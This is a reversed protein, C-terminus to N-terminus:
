VNQLRVALATALRGAEQDVTRSAERAADLNGAKALSELEHAAETTRKGGFVAASGKLTHAARRLRAADGLATAERIESLLQPCERLFVVALERLFEPRNEAHELAVQWDLDGSPFLPSSQPTPSALNGAPHWQSQWHQLAAREPVPPALPVRVVDICREIEQQLEIAKIPKSVYGDMGAELCRERDGKM